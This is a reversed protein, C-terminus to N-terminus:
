QVTGYEYSPAKRGAQQQLAARPVCAQGCQQGKAQCCFNISNRYKKAFEIPRLFDRLNYIPQTMNHRFIGQNFM